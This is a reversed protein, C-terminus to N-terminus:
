CTSRRVHYTVAPCCISCLHRRNLKRAGMRGPWVQMVLRAAAPDAAALESLEDLFTDIDDLKAVYPNGLV